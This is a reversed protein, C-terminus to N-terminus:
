EKGLYREGLKILENREELSINVNKKIFDLGLIPTKKRIKAM